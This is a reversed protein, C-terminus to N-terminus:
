NLMCKLRKVREFQKMRYIQLAFKWNIQQCIRISHPITKM